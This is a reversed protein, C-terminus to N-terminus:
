PLSREQAGAGGRPLTPADPHRCPCLAQVAALLLLGALLGALYTPLHVKRM